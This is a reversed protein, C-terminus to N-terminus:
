IYRSQNKGRKWDIVSLVIGAIIVAIGIMLLFGSAALPVINKYFASNPDTLAKSKEPNESYMIKVTISDSGKNEVYFSYTDVKPIVFSKIFIPDGEEYSGFKDGFINSVTVLVHDNSKYDTIYLGWMLPVQSSTTTHSFTYATGPDITEKESVEDFMSEPSPFFGEGGLSPGANHVVSYALMMAIAIMVAGAIIVIPGRKKM